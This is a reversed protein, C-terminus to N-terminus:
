ENKELLRYDFRVRPIEDEKKTFNLFSFLDCSMCKSEHDQDREDIMNLIDLSTIYKETETETETKKASICPYFISCKTAM